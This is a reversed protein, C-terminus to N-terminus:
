IAGGPDSICLEALSFFQELEMGDLTSATGVDAQQRGGQPAVVGQVSRRGQV